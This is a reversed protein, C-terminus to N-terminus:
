GAFEVPVAKGDAGFATLERISESQANRRSSGDHNNLDLRTTPQAFAADVQFQDQGLYRVQYHAIPQANAMGAFALCFLAGLAHNTSKMSTGQNIRDRRRSMKRVSAPEM